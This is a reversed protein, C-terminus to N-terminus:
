HSRRKARTLNREARVAARLETLSKWTPTEKITSSSRYGLTAAWKAAQWFQSDPRKQIMDIMRVNASAKRRGTNATDSSASDGEAEAPKTTKSALKRVVKAAGDLGAIHQESPWAGRYVRM